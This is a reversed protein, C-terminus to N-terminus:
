WTKKAFEDAVKAAMMRTVEGPNYILGVLNDIESSSLKSDLLRNFELVIIRAAKKLSVEDPSQRRLEDMLPIAVSLFDGGNVRQNALVVPMYVLKFCLIVEEEM